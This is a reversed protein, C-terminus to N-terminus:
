KSKAYGSRRLSTPSNPTNGEVFPTLYQLITLSYLIFSLTIYQIYTNYTEGGEFPPSVKKDLKENM